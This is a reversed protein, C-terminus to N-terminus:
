WDPRALVYDLMKHRPTTAPMTMGTERALKYLETVSMTSTMEDLGDDKIQLKTFLSMIKPAVKHTACWHKFYVFQSPDYALITFLQSMSSVAYEELLSYLANDTAMIMDVIQNYVKRTEYYALIADIYQQKTNHTM